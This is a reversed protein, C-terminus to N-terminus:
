ELNENFKEVKKEVNGWKEKSKREIEELKM